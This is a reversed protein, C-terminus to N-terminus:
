RLFLKGGEYQFRHFLLYIFRKLNKNATIKNESAMGMHRNVSKKAMKEGKSKGRVKERVSVKAKKTTVGRFNTQIFNRGMNIIRM